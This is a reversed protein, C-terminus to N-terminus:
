TTVVEVAYATSLTLKYNGYITQQMTTGLNITISHGFDSFDLTDTGEGTSKEIRVSFLKVTRLRM